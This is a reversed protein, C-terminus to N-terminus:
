KLQKLIEDIANDLQPDNGELRDKFTNIVLIDPAVGVKEINEGELTYCGWSPLRFITGDLLPLNTTFIIWRYTENGIITGLKLTQFGEATMEADSLSQENILLVIPKDSPAFNPQPTLKGDRYKWQLYSKQSLMQLVEDHVNGGRNYRLDLILADRYHWEDAIEKKFRQLESQGMNKMHIYAIREKSKDDVRKQNGDMWEDYLLVEFDSSNLPKIKVSFESGSREFTLEIEEDLSPSIFYSERNKSEDIRVGNVAILKDGKRIDKNGKSAPSQNVIREVVFPNSNSFLIGTNASKNDYFTKEEDGTSYFGLHSSNLEGLLDDMIVRLNIRTKVYPLFQAYYDRLESFNVGHYDEDYFNEALKAWAEYYMQTFDSQLNRTFKFDVLIKEVKNGSLNLKYIDSGMMVYYKGDAEVINFGNGKAGDLKKHETKEFPKITTKWLNWGENDHNSTYFVYTAGNEQIVHTGFQNQPFTVIEEWRNEINTYDIKVIPKSTDKEEKTFLKEFEDSKFDDDINQLAIRYIESDKFGSPYTPNFRDATFYLYKGDPSWYPSTESVGTKTLHQTTKKDLDYIFIDQEFNRYSSYAVYKDDPSFYATSPYVAWFEDEILQESEFSKLDLMYLGQSGSLYLAKSKDSNFTISQHSAAGETRQVASENGNAKITFINPWGRVTQTFLITENDSLWFVDVVRESSNTNLKKVFKGEIDSVFLVGRSVFAIKKNDSSVDFSSIKSNTSFEKNLSLTNNRFLSIDVLQSSGDTVNYKYIQYDKEFVIVSGDASVRPRKITREFDTLRIINNNEYKYLNYENNFQVSAFYLNGNRDITPWTDKGEFTTLKKYEGTDFNYSQIDSNFAGVYRKRMPFNYSEWSTNFYVINEKPDEVLNHPWNFYHDFLREPTGGNISIKYTSKYNYRSSSFYIYKSDWSWSDVYDNDDHFTLQVIEGGSAPMLYVNPNGDQRGTFAIWEGDPSYAPESERGDMGTLRFAQGGNSNVVWIDNDYCFAIQSGDPSLTPDTTFYTDSAFLSFTLFLFTFITKM